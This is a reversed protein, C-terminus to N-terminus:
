KYWLSQNEYMRKFLGECKRLQDFTGVQVVKGEDIVVIRDAIKTSALRHTIFITTKGKSINDFLNYMKSESVPDLASTPEDLVLIPSDSLLTRAMAIKQWEGGSFDTGDSFLKGIKSDLTIHKDILVEEAGTIKLVNIIDKDKINQDRNSLLLIDRLSMEYKCIDQFLVSFMSRRELESYEKISKKNIYIQGNYDTYLNLLLKVLTSKGAGNKGVIAIREGEHLNFSVNKLTDTTAGRYRFSINSFSLEKVKVPLIKKEEKEDKVCELKIFENIDNVYEKFFSIEKINDALALSIFNILKIEYQVLAIYLGISIYNKKLPVLLFIAIVIIFFSMLMGVSKMLLLSGKVVKKESQKTQYYSYKWFKQIFQKFGFLEREYLATKGVLLENYYEAMRKNNSTKVNVSYNIKGRQISVLVVPIMLIIMIISSVISYHMILILIGACEFFLSVFGVLNQFGDDIKDICNEKIRSILNRTNDDEIYAYKLSSIRKALWLKFNLNINKRTYPLMFLIMIDVFKKLIIITVYIIINTMSIKSDYIVTDRVDDILAALFWVEFISMLSQLLIFVTQMVMAIGGCKITFNFSNVKKNLEM